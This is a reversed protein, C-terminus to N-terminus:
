STLVRVTGPVAIRGRLAYEAVVAIEEDPERASLERHYQLDVRGDGTPRRLHSANDPPFPNGPLYPNCTFM